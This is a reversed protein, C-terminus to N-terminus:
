TVAADTPTPATSHSIFGTPIYLESDGTGDASGYLHLAYSLHGRRIKGDDGILDGRYAPYQNALALPEFGNAAAVADPGGFITALLADSAAMAETYAPTIANTPIHKGVELGTPVVNIVFKSLRADDTIAWTQKKSSQPGWTQTVSSVYNKTYNFSITRGSTDAITDISSADTYRLNIAVGSHDMIQNCHLEGDAFPAFTYVTGDATSLFKLAGDDTLRLGSNGNAELQSGSVMPDLNIFKWLQGQSVILVYKGAGENYYLSQFLPFQFQDMSYTLSLDVGPGIHDPLSLLPLDSDSLNWRYTSLSDAVPFSDSKPLIGARVSTSNITLSESLRALAMTSAVVVAFILVIRQIFPIGARRITRM